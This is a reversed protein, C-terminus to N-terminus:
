LNIFTITNLDYVLWSFRAWIMFYDFLGHEFLLNIFLKLFKLFKLLKNCFVIPVFADWYVTLLCVYVCANYM